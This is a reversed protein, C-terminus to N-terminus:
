TRRFSADQGPVQGRAGEGRLRRHAVSTFDRPEQYRVALEPGRGRVARHSFPRQGVVDFVDFEAGLEPVVVGLHVVHARSQVRGEKALNRGNRWLHLRGPEHASAVVPSNTDPVHLRLFGLGDEPRVVVLRGCHSGNENRGVMQEDASRVAGDVDVGKVTGRPRLCAVLLLLVAHFGDIRELGLEAAAVGDDGGDARRRRPGVAPVVREVDRRPVARQSHPADGHAAQVKLQHVSKRLM